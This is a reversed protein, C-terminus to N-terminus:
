ERNPVIAVLWAVKLVVLMETGDKGGILDPAGWGCHGAVRFAVVAGIASIVPVLVSVRCEGTGSSCLPGVVLFTPTEISAFWNCFQLLDVSDIHWGTFGLGNCMKCRSRIMNTLDENQCVSLFNSYNVM